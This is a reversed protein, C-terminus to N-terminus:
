SGGSGGKEDDDNDDIQFRRIHLDLPNTRGYHGFIQQNFWLVFRKM